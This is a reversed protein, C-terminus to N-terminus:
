KCSRGNKFSFFIVAYGLPLLSLFLFLFLVLCLVVDCWMVCWVHVEREKGGETTNKIVEQHIASRKQHRSKWTESRDAKSEIRSFAQSVAVVELSPLVCLPLSLFFVICPM